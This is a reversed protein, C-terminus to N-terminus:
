YDMKQPAVMKISYKERSLISDFAVDSSYPNYLMFFLNTKIYFLRMKCVFSRCNEIFQLNMLKLVSSSLFGSVVSLKMVNLSHLCGVLCGIVIYPWIWTLNWSLCYSFLSLLSYLEMLSMLFGRLYETIWRMACRWQAKTHLTVKLRGRAGHCHLLHQCLPSPFFTVTISIYVTFSPTDCPCSPASPHSCTTVQTHHPTPYLQWM